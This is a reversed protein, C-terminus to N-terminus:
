SFVLTKVAVPVATGGGVPSGIDIYDGRGCSIRDLCLISARESRSYATRGGSQSEARLDTQEKPENQEKMRITRRLAQGLAKAFDHEVLVPVTRTRMPLERALIQSLKVIEPYSPSAPGKMSVAFTKAGAAEAELVAEKLREPLADLDEAGEYKVPFVPINKMPFEVGSCLITSGSVEMSYSAAGIVTARVTEASERIEASRFSPDCLIASALYYGLDGYRLMGGPIDPTRCAATDQGAETIDEEARKMGRICDAVGGSFTVIDPRASIPKEGPILLSQAAETMPRLGAIAALSQALMACVREGEERALFEGPAYSQASGSDARESDANGSNVNGHGTNWGRTVTRAKAGDADAKEAAARRLAETLFPSVKRITGDADVRILRAGINCASCEKREGDVFLCLNSTGGGIDINLVSKGERRSLEDAGAGRGALYSELDPGAEATIFDGAMQSVALMVERANRKGASEGTIIVAGTQMDEPKLGAQNFDERILEAVAQGDICDDETLPTFHVAGRDIVERATVEVRPVTGFGASKEVTLRSFVVQTTTTGIDIGASLLKENM